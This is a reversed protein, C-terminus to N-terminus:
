PELRIPSFPAFEALEREHSPEDITCWDGDVTLVYADGSRDAIWLDGERDRWLGPRDPLFLRTRDDDTEHTSHIVVTVDDARITPEATGM